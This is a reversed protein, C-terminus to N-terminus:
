YFNNYYWVTIVDSCIDTHNETVNEQIFGQLEQKVEARQLWMLNYYLLWYLQILRRYNHILRAEASYHPSWGSIWEKGSLKDRRM